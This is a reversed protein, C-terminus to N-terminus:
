GAKSPAALNVTEISSDVDRVRRMVGTLTGEPLAMGQILPYAKYMISFKKTQLSAGPVILPILATPDVMTLFMQMFEVSFPRIMKWMM